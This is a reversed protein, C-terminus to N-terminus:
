MPPANLRHEETPLSGELRYTWPGDRVLRVRTGPLTNVIFTINDRHPGYERADVLEDPFKWHPYQQHWRVTATWFYRIRGRPYKVTARDTHSILELKVPALSLHTHGMKVTEALRDSDEVSVNIYGGTPLVDDDADTM